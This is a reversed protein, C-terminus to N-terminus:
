EGAVFFYSYCSWKCVQNESFYVLKKTNKMKQKYGKLVMILTIENKIFAAEDWLFTAKLKVKEKKLKLKLKIVDASLECIMVRLCIDHFVVNLPIKYSIKWVM